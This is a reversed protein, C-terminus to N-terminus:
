SMLSSFEAKISERGKRHSESAVHILIKVIESPNLEKICQADTKLKCSVDGDFTVDDIVYFGSYSITTCVGQQKKWRTVRFLDSEFESHGSGGGYDINSRKM